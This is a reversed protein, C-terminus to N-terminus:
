GLIMGVLQTIEDLMVKSSVLDRHEFWRLLNVAVGGVIMCSAAENSVSLLLGGKASLELRECMDLYNQQMFIEIFVSRMPSALIKTIATERKIMFDMVAEAYKVYYEITPGSTPALPTFSADFSMRIDKIIYTIFDLKDAFHKYFTARRICARECLDNITIDEISTENLMAFFANQLAARTKIVRLDEAKSM